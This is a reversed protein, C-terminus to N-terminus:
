RKSIRSGKLAASFDEAVERAFRQLAAEGDPTSLAAYAETVRRTTKRRGWRTAMAAAHAMRAIRDLLWLVLACIVALKLEYM